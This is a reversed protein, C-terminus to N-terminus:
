AIDKTIKEAESIVDEMSAYRWGGYRGCSVVGKGLLFNIIKKRALNYNKDQVPYGYKIDNIKECCIENKDKIIKMVILKERVQASIEKKFIPSNKSYSIDAYLSGKGAPTLCPSFNHFFGVRFFPINKQSFYIWHRDLCPKAKLGLNVNYISVWRLEKFKLKIDEPLEIIIKALEPLPITSILTSFKEKRGDGFTVIKNKLDIATAPCNLYIDGVRRSLGQILKEVGGKKPYWFFANYGLLNRKEKTSVARIQRITPTVVFRQAWKYDLQELPTKWLKTNYPIMFHEAVGKGFNNYIWQLFNDNNLLKQKKSGIFGSLCQQAVKKPLYNFSAQFPYPIFKKFTYIYAKREHKTINGELIKKVLSLIKKSRFHLLHGSFDFIFGQKKISRCLGGPKAEKEFIKAKAKNERLFYAASLGSLGAGLILFKKQKM